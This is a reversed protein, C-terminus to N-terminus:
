DDEGSDDLLELSLQRADLQGLARELTESSFSGEGRASFLAQRQAEIVNLEDQVSQPTPPHASAAAPAPRIGALIANLDQRETELLEPSRAAPKLLRVVFGLTTGQILLSGTALFFAALILLSRHPTEPPLTQAAALTIAGRMGAWVLVGGERWGFPATRLYDIDALMRREWLGIRHQRPDAEDSTPHTSRRRRREEIHPAIREARRSRRTLSAMLPALYVARILLVAGLGIAAILVAPGVHGHVEEVDLILGYIELGMLLFILGELVLEITRWVQDVSLRHQPSLVRPSRHGTVLGAVVAAFLGSAGLLEAPVSALFPATLSIVTNVTPDKTQRRAWLTAHAVAVGLILAVVIAFAFTGVASWFGVAAAAGAVATRLLVLATADNLLSEGELMTVTRGSVGSQRVISTAVADTPSIIAGLAIGWWIDLGPVVLTFVFGLAVASLLVLAVSLGSIAGFDRRFEMTPVSVASAYLLPPLVGAIIWEPNVSIAPIAPIFSVGIGVLVLLLPAALRLRPALIRSGAIVLLALVIVILAEM